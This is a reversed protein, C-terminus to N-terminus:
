PPIYDKVVDAKPIEVSKAKFDEINKLCEAESKFRTSCELATGNDMVLKWTWYRERGDMSVQRSYLFKM